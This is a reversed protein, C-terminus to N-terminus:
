RSMLFQVEREIESISITASNKKRLEQNLEPL